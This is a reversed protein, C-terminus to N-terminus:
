GNLISKLFLETQSKLNRLDKTNDIIFKANARKKEIDIQLSVRHLAENLNLGNRKMIRSILLENPAYVLVVNAFKDSKFKEFYLPIDVFYIQNTQELKECNIYIERMIKPHLIEELVLLKKADNFVIQGLKKRDIKNQNLIERGFKGVIEDQSLNLQEHSILDADIVSFGCDKLLNVFTSKGSGISGTVVYANNFKDM